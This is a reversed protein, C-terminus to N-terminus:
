STDAITLVYWYFQSIQILRQKIPETTFAIVIQAITYLFLLDSDM